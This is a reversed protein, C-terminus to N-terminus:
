GIAKITPFPQQELLTRYGCGPGQLLVTSHPMASPSCGAEAGVLWYGGGNNPAIGVIRSSHIGSGPIWGEYEADGFAFVGGDAGVLWYGRGDFTPAIGVIDSM